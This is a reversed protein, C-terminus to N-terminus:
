HSVGQHRQPGKELAKSNFFLGLPADFLDYAASCVLTTPDFEMHIPLPIPLRCPLRFHAKFMAPVLDFVKQLGCIIIIPGRPRLARLPVFRLRFARPLPDQFRMCGGGGLHWKPANPAMTLYIRIFGNVRARAQAGHVGLGAAM